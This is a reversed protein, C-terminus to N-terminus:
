LRRGSAAGPRVGAQRELEALAVRMGAESTEALQGPSLRALGRNPRWLWNRAVAPGLVAQAAMELESRRLTADKM